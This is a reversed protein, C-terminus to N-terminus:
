GLEVWSYGDIDQYYTYMRGDKIWQQGVVPNFPPRDNIFPKTAGTLKWNNPFQSPSLSTNTTAEYVNGEFFVKEGILYVSRNGNSDTPKYNGKYM